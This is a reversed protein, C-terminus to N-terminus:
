YGMKQEYLQEARNYADCQQQDIYLEFVEKQKASLKDEDIIAEVRLGNCEECTVDYRGSFYAEEFDPDQDFEERSIGHGDIADNVHKGKGECKNCMEFKSPLEHETEEGDDSCITIMMTSM